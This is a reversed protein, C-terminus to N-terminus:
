AGAPVRGRDKGCCYTGAVAGIILLVPAPLRPAHPLEMLTTPHIQEEASAARSVILCATEPGLGAASLRAALGDYDSGPMHVFVTADHCRFDDRQFPTNVACHHNSLFVVKSALSRNTLSIQAAAAAGLAAAVGPIIEFEVGAKRLADIEEGARGFIMPDGGKLRVVQRGDRAASILLSHIEEQSTSAHGCRKGVNRVQTRAPILKLIEPSVLDDHLVLEAQRLLRAAKVTLLDPAGPGAGVLYVKGKMAM